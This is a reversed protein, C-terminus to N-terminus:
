DKCGDDVAQGDPARPDRLNPFRADPPLRLPRNCDVLSFHPVPSRWLTQGASYLTALTQREQDTVGLAALTEPSDAAGDGDTDLDATGGTISLIKLVRGNPVGRWAGQDRDCTGVPM